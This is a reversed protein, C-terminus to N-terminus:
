TSNTTQAGITFNQSHTLSNTETVQKFVQFNSHLPISFARNDYYYKQSLFCPLRPCCLGVILTLILTSCVQAARREAAFFDDIHSIFVIDDNTFEANYCAVTIENTNM